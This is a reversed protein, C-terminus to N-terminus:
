KLSLIDSFSLQCLELMGLEQDSEPDLSDFWGHGRVLQTPELVRFFFCSLRVHLFFQVQVSIYVIFLLLKQVCYITM